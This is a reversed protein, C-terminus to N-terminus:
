PGYEPWNIASVNEYCKTNAAFEHSSLSGEPLDNLTACEPILNVATCDQPVHHVNLATKPDVTDYSRRIVIYEKNYYPENRPCAIFVGAPASTLYTYPDPFAALSVGITGSGVNVTVGYESPDAPASENNGQVYIGFPFPPTGGDTVISGKGYRIEEATGNHYFIRGTDEGGDALLVADNLGAGVHLGNFVWGNVSPTLDTSPDTVNAILRFGKSASTPPYHPVVQRPKLPTAYALGALGLSLLATHM